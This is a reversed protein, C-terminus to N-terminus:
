EEHGAKRIKLLSWEFRIIFLLYFFFLGSIMVYFFALDYILWVALLMIIANFIAAWPITELRLKMIYEDENNRRALMLILGGM